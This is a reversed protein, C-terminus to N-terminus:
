EVATGRQAETAAVTRLPPFRAQLEPGMVQVVAVAERL